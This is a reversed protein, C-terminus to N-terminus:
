VFAPLKVPVAGADTIEWDVLNFTEPSKYTPPLMLIPPVVNVTEVFVRFTVSLFITRPIVVVEPVKSREVSVVAFRPPIAIALVM